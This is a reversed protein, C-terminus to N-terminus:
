VSHSWFDSFLEYKFYVHTSIVSLSKHLIINTASVSQMCICHWTIRDARGEATSESEIMKSHVDQAQL